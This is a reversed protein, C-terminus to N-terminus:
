GAHRANKRADVAAGRIALHLDLDAVQSLQQVGQRAHGRCAQSLKQLRMLCRNQPCLALPGEPASPEKRLLKPFVTPGNEGQAAGLVAVILSLLRGPGARMDVAETALWMADIRIMAAVQADLGRVRGGRRDAVDRQHCDCGSSTRCTVEVTRPQTAPIGSRIALCRWSLHRPSSTAAVARDEQDSVRDRADSADVIWGRALNAHM